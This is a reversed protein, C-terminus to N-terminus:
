AATVKNSLSRFKSGEIQRLIHNEFDALTLKLRGVTDVRPVCIQTLIM